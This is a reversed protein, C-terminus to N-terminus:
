LKFSEEGFKARRHLHYLRDKDDVEIRIVVPISSGEIDETQFTEILHGRSEVVSIRKLGETTLDLIKAHKRLFALRDSIQKPRGSSEPTDVFAIHSITEKDELTIAYKGELIEFRFADLSDPRHGLSALRRLVGLAPNLNEAESIESALKREAKLTGSRASSLIESAPVRGLVVSETVGDIIRAAKFVQDNAWFTFGLVLGLVIATINSSDIKVTKM